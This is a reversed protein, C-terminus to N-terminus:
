IREYDFYSFRFSATGLVVANADQTSVLDLDSLGLPFVDVFKFRLQPNNMNTLVTVTADSYSGAILSTTKLPNQRTNREQMARYDAYGTAGGLGRIWDHIELWSKYAEDILFTANFASYTVKNGPVPLNVHPTPRVAESIAIGPLNVKQCFFTFNPLRTFKLQYKTTQTVNGNTTQTPVQNSM